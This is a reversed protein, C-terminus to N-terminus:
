TVAPTKFGLLLAASVVRAKLQQSAFPAVRALTSGSHLCDLAPHALADIDSALAVVMASLADAEDADDGMHGDCMRLIPLVDSFFESGELVKSSHGQAAPENPDPIASGGDGIADLDHLLAVYSIRDVVHGSLGMKMAIQRAISATRESHGLRVPNQSEAAEVLVEVTTRYTDRVQFLLAASQRMLLLLVVVPILSWVSMSPYIILLLAAASWQAVLIPAQMGLGGWLM